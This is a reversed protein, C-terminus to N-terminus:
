ARRRRLALGAMGLLMLLGSTPEPVTYFGAGQYGSSALFVSQSNSAESFMVNRNKGDANRTASIYDVLLGETADVIMAWYVTDGKSIGSYPDSSMADNSGLLGDSVSRTSVYGSPALTGAAYDTVFAALAAEAASASSYAYLYATGSAIGTSTEPKYVPSLASISWTWQAAQAGIALAIAALAIMLKKM